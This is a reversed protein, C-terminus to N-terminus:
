QAGRLHWHLAVGDQYGVGDDDEVLAAQQCAGRRRCIEQAAVREVVPCVPAGDQVPEVVGVVEGPQGAACRQDRHVGGDLDVLVSLDVDFAEAVFHDTADASMGVIAGGGPHAAASQ